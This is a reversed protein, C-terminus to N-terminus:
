LDKDIATKASSGRVRQFSACVITWPIGIGPFMMGPNQNAMGGTFVVPFEKKTRAVGAIYEAFIDSVAEAAKPSQFQRLL